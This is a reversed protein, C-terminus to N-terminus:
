DKGDSAGPADTPSSGALTRSFDAVANNVIECVSQSSITAGTVAQIEGEGADVSKTVKLAAAASKGRFKDRWRSKIINAGLGPTEKQALVYLGTITEARADLGILLEIRDAFGQGSAPVVWGVQRGQSDLAAYVEIKGVTHKRGSTAGRVLKPIAGLTENLKNEAIRGALGAHVGALAAAFVVALTLVLWAQLLYGNKM